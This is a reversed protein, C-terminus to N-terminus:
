DVTAPLRSAARCAQWPTHRRLPKVSHVCAWVSRANGEHQKAMTDADERPLELRQEVVEIVKERRAGLEQCPEYSCRAIAAPDADLAVRVSEALAVLHPSDVGLTGAGGDSNRLM